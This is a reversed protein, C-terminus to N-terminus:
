RKLRGCRPPNKVVLVVQSAWSHYVYGSPKGAWELISAQLIGHISSGLLSVTRPTAFLRYAELSRARM